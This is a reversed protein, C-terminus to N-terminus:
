CDQLIIQARQSCFFVIELEKSHNHTLKELSLHIGLSYLKGMKARERRKHHLDYEAVQVAQNRTLLVPLENSRDSFSPEV